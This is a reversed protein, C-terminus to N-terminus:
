RLGAKILDHLHLIGVIKNSSLVALSTITHDEMYTLAHRALEFPTTSRPNKTMIDAASLSFLTSGQQCARRIDGDTIIGLLQNADDAVLTLGLKKKNIHEIVGSFSTTLSVLPIENGQKMFDSVTGGALQRGLDGSPHVRAYDDRSLGRKKSAVLGVADGFAMTLTSSSTPALKFYCAESTFPLPVVFSSASLIISTSCTILASKCITTISQFIAELEQCKGSKSIGILIDQPQIVGLDGHLADVPHLFFSPIGLSSFTAALKQGVLGSKGVGSFIVKGTCSCVSDVLLCAAHPVQETFYLLAAAEQKVITALEKKIVDHSTSQKINEKENTLM